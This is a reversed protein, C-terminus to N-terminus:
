PMEAVGIEYWTMHLTGDIGDLTKILGYNKYLKKKILREVMPMPQELYHKYTIHDFNTIFTINMKLIHFFGLGKKKYQIIRGKLCKEFNLNPIETNYMTNNSKVNSSVDNDFILKCNCEIEYFRFSRNYTNVHSKIIDNIEKLEPNM